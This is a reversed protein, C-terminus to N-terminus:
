GESTVELHRNSIFWLQNLDNVLICYAESTESASYIGLIEYTNGESFGNDLPLPLPSRPGEYQHIKVYIGPKIYISM